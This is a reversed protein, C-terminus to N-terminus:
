FTDLRIFRGVASRRWLKSADAVLLPTDLYNDRLFDNKDLLFHPIIERVTGECWRVYRETYPPENIKEANLIFM